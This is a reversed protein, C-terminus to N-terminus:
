KGSHWTNGQPDQSHSDKAAQWHIQCRTPFTAPASPERPKLSQGLKDWSGATEPRVEDLAMKPQSGTDGESYDGMNQWSEPDTADETLNHGQVSSPAPISDMAAWITLRERLPGLCHLRNLGSRSLPPPFFGPFHLVKLCRQVDGEQVKWM